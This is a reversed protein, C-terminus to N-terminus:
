KDANVGKNALFDRMGEFAKPNVMSHEQNMLWAIEAALPLTPAEMAARAAMKCYQLTIRNSQALEKGWQWAAEQIEGHGVIRNILGAEFARKADWNKGTLILEFALKTPISAKFITTVIPIPLFGRMVEPLGFRAKEESAVALDHGLLLTIGSGLCYGNVVAITVKPYTRIVESVYHPKPLSGLEHRERRQRDKPLETLDRGACYAEEGAGTTLVVSISDDHRLEELVSVIETLAGENLANKKEPRNFIIKAVRDRKEVIVFKREGAM